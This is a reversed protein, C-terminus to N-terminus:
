VRHKKGLEYFHRAIKRIDKHTTKFNGSDIIINSEPSELFSDIEKELDDKELSEIFSLIDDLASDYGGMVDLEYQAYEKNDSVENTKKLREIEAKIKDIM